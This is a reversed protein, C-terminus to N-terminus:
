FMNNQPDSDPHQKSKARTPGNTQMRAGGGSGGAGLLDALFAVDRDSLPNRPDKGAGRELQSRLSSEAASALLRVAAAYELGEADEDEGEGDEDDNGDPASPKRAAARRLRHGAVRPGPRPPCKL